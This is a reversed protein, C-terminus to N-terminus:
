RRPPRRRGRAARRPRTGPSGGRRTKKAIMWRRTVPPMSAPATFPQHARRSKTAVAAVAAAVVPAVASSPPQAPVAAAGVAVRDGEAELGQGPLLLGDLGVLRQHRLPVGGMGVDLTWYTCPLQSLTWSWSSVEKSPPSAGSMM